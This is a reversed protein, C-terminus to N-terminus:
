YQAPIGYPKGNPTSIPPSISTGFFLECICKNLVFFLWYLLLKEQNLAIARQGMFPIYYIDNLAWIGKRDVMKHM